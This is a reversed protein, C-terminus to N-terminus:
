PSHPFSVVVRRRHAPERHGSGPGVPDSQAASRSGDPAPAFRVEVDLGGGERPRAQIVAAHAAAIARVIALGLGHSTHRTRQGDLRQFAQFLRGIQDAPVTPGSNSVAIYAAGAQIGTEINVWGRATNYRLANGVLNSVLCEILDPDGAAPAPALMPRIRLGQHQAQQRFPEIASATIAALDLSEHRDLGRESSALTLLSEILREAQRGSALVRECASRLAGITVGPDALAVQLLTREVTLPTRLEHSANAVFRRQSDFSAELRGLLDDLTEGLEKFEDDPGAIGIREHLNGASIRRATATITRVPRLVQGAVIWGLAVSLVAMIALAVASRELAQPPPLGVRQLLSSQLPDAPNHSGIAPGAGHSGNFEAAGGMLEYTIALLGAGSALFLAAYFLTLRLRATPRPLRPWPRRASPAGPRPM